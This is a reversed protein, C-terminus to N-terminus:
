SLQYGFLTDCPRTILPILVFHKTAICMRAHFQFVMCVLFTQLKLDLTKYSCRGSLSDPIKLM